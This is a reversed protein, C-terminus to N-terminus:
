GTTHDSNNVSAFRVDPPLQMYPAAAPDPATAALTAALEEPTGGWADDKVASEHTPDSAPGDYGIVQAGAGLTDNADPLLAETSLPEWGAENVTLTPSLYTIPVVYQEGVAMSPEGDLRVPTQVDGHFTWGDLDWDMTTPAAPADPRSWLIKDVHATIVRPIFGEGAAVEEASAPLAHEATVTVVALHDSYTVWDTATASPLLDDGDAVVVKPAPPKSSGTAAVALTGATLAACTGAAVLVTGMTVKIRLKM